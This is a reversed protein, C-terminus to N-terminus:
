QESTGDGQTCALVLAFFSVAASASICARLAWIFCESGSKVARSICCLRSLCATSAMRMCCAMCASYHGSSLSANANYLISGCCCIALSHTPKAVQGQASVPLLLM